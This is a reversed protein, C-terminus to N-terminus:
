DRDPTSGVLVGLCAPSKPAAVWWTQLLTDDAFREQVAAADVAVAFLGRWVLRVHPGPQM